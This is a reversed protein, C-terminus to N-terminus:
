LTSFFLTSILGKKASSSLLVGLFVINLWSQAVNMSYQDNVNTVTLAVRYQERCHQVLVAQIKIQSREQELAFL